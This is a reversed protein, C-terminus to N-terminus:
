EGKQVNVIPPPEFYGIRVASQLRIERSFQRGHPEADAQRNTAPRRLQTSVRVTREDQKLLLGAPLIPM